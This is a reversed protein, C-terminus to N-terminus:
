HHLEMWRMFLLLAKPNDCMVKVHCFKLVYAFYQITFLTAKLERANALTYVAKKLHGNEM